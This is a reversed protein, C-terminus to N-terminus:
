LNITMILNQRLLLTLERMSFKKKPLKLCHIINKKYANGVVNKDIGKQNAIFTICENLMEETTNKKKIFFFEDVSIFNESQM